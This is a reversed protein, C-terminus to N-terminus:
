PTSIGEAGQASGPDYAGSATSAAIRQAEDWREPTGVDLWQGTHHIGRLLRAAIAADLIPRLPCRGDPWSAFLAPELRAIGAYTLRPGQAIVWGDADLAFDGGLHHAPNDVLVLTSIGAPAATLAAWQFDTLVDANVLLFPADGLLPLARIIGGGTELAESGEESYRIRIRWRSGDGLAARIADGGYALNVVLDEVGAAVLRDIQREILSRGAIELLPKPRAATLERMRVGRGAALIMARM